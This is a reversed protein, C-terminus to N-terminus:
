ASEVSKLTLSLIERLNTSASPIIGKVEKVMMERLSPIVDKASNFCSAMRAAVQGNKEDVRKIMDAVAAYGKGSPNHFARVNAFAFGGLVSYVKNPNTIAFGPHSELTALISEDAAVSAMTRLWKDLV